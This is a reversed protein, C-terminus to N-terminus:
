EEVLNYLEQIVAPYDIKTFDTVDLEILHGLQFTGYGRNKCRDM